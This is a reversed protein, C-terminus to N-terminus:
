GGFFLVWILLLALALAVYWGVGGGLEIRVERGSTPRPDGTSTRLTTSMRITPESGPGDGLDDPDALKEFFEGPRGAGRLLRDAHPFDDMVRHFLRRSGEPVDDWSSFTEGNIVIETSTRIETSDGVSSEEGSRMEVFDPIGDGDSDEGMALAREYDRRVEPPMDEPGAYERGDIWIRNM